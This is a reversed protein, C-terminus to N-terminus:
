PERPTARRVAGDLVARVAGDTIGEIQVIKSRSHEGALITISRRAVAFTRALLEILAENAAGDVPPAMLRVKLGDGYAGVVESRTARPQVRIALRVRGKDGERRASTM